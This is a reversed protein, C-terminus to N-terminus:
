VAQVKVNVASLFRELRRRSMFGYRNLRKDLADYEDEDLSFDGTEMQALLNWLLKDRAIKIGKKRAALYAALAEEARITAKQTCCGFNKVLVEAFAKEAESLRMQALCNKPYSQAYLRARNLERYARLVDKRSAMIRGTREKRSLVKM